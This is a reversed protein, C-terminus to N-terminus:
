CWDNCKPCHQGKFLDQVKPTGCKHCTPVTPRPKPPVVPMPEIGALADALAWILPADERTPLPDPM